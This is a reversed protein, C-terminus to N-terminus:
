RSNCCQIDKNIAWWLDSVCISEKDVMPYSASYDRKIM